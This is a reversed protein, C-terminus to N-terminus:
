KVAATGPFVHPLVAGTTYVCRDNHGCEPAIVIVHKAGPQENVYEVFAEGRARRSRHRASPSSRHL